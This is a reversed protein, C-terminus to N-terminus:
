LYQGGTALSGAITGPYYNVGGGNSDIVGNGTAIYRTGTVTAGGTYTISAYPAWAQGGGGATIFCFSFTVSNQITLTPKPAGYFTVVGNGVSALHSEANGYISIPGSVVIHGGQDALIQNAVSPGFAVAELWVSSAGIVWLCHGADGTKPATSQLYIGNLYYFGGLQCIMTTGAVINIIKVAFPNAANGTIGVSGSGNPPPLSITDSESYTGDALYINFAFGSLDFTLMVALAHQITQFPGSTGSVTAQSGDYLTDSGLTPNVYLSQPATMIILGGIAGTLLQWHGVGDYAVQIIQGANIEGAGLPTLTGHVLPAFGVGNVNLQVPGTNKAAVKIRFFQGQQYSSIAPIPTIAIFNPNGGDVAFNVVGGQVSKSLQHLDADTPTNGSDTIFNVIERQPNEISAAPPISGMTGTSPNGNIYSANPDSVGYPAEYKM